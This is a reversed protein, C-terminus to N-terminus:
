PKTQSLLFDLVAPVFGPGIRPVHRGGNITWTQVTSGGACGETYRRVTTEAGPLGAEIDLAPAETGAGACRNFGVWDAATRAASPYARNVLTGGGHAITEDLTSHIALVGVPGSPRCQSADQWTAGNLGAIATIQDAHDCAMRFSMFAGNSHGVLYVRRADVRHSRQVATIVESLYRSDDSRSGYLDCCADTANWFRNDRNDTRGDPYAYIFGRRNSEQTFRLYSEMEAGSSTYGHLAVVLPAPTGPDYTDPVHLTFQRDGHQVTSTGRAPTSPSVANTPDPPGTADGPEPDAGCGAAVLALVAMSAMARAVRRARQM